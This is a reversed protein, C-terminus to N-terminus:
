EPQWRYGHKARWHRDAVRIAEEDYGKKAAVKWQQYEPSYQIGRGKLAYTQKKKRV